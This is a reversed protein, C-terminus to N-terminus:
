ATANQLDAAAVRKGDVKWMISPTQKARSTTRRCQEVIRAEVVKGNIIASAGPYRGAANEQSATEILATLATNM